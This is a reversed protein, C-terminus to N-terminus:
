FVLDLCNQTLPSFHLRSLNDLCWGHVFILFCISKVGPHFTFFIEPYSILKLLFVSPLQSLHLFLILPFFLVSPILYKLIFPFPLSWHTLLLRVEDWLLKCPCEECHSHLLGRFTHFLSIRNIKTSKYCGHPMVYFHNTWCFSTNASILCSM